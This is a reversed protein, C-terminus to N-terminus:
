LNADLIIKADLENGRLMVPQGASLGRTGSLMLHVGNIAADGIAITGVPDSSVGNAATWVGQVTIAPKVRLSAPTSIFVRATTSGNAFGTGIYCNTKSNSNIVLQYRQCRALQEGYDPIENLVWKGNEQHALTQQSGLELKMAKVSLSGANAILSQIVVQLTTAGDPITWTTSYLGVGTITKSMSQGASAGIRVVLQYSNNVGIGDVLVSVTVTKGAYLEPKEIKQYFIQYLATMSITIVGNGVEIIDSAAGSVWRDITYGGETYSTKGRQNVPNGFYWNDLLNPNCPFAKTAIVSGIIAINDGAEYPAPANINDRAQQKQADTLTQPTNYGVAGVSSASLTINGDNDPTVGNVNAPYGRPGQPGEPGQIGQEGQPGQIGQKGQPGTEGTDGKPGQIGPEGTDGKPGQPGTDGKEGQPGPEGPDGKPGQIGRIGQVGQEGQPGQPGAEGQAGVPGQPGQPGRLPGVSVWDETQESWIYCNGDERVYYMNADGAPIANKLAAMTDYTDEIHLSTGDKGNAGAPGQPGQPGQPGTEGKIGQVGQIGQEGQPGVPGQPGTDGKDGKDGNDGKEGAAGAPGRVGQIGQPGTDGKPGTPGQAGQIGQIGQIGQPGRINRPSPVSVPPEQVSWSMVGEDSVSPVLVQGRDGKDGKAGQIGQVGQAGQPGTDGKIGQVITYVGDDTVESNVFKMRSRQPLQVGNKDYILHGSSGTAQWTSGDTSVELVKDGNLRIYKFGGTNEPLLVAQEVGAAELQKLLVDNLYSKIIEGAEDFKAKLEDATLGGVDNPEDDLKAIIQMDKTLKQLAM